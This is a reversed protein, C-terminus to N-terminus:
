GEATSVWRPGPLAPVAHVHPDSLPLSFPFRVFVWKKVLYTVFEQERGASLEASLSCLHGLRALGRSDGASTPLHPQPVALLCAPIDQPLMSDQPDSRIRITLRSVGPLEGWSVLSIM